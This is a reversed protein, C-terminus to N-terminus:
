IPSATLKVNVTTLAPLTGSVSRWTTEWTGPPSSTMLEPAGCAAECGDAATMALSM